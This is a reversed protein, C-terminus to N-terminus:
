QIGATSLPVFTYQAISYGPLLDTAASYTGTGHLVGFESIVYSNNNGIAWKPDSVKPVTTSNVVFTASSNNQGYGSKAVNGCVYWTDNYRVVTMYTNNYVYSPASTFQTIKFLATKGVNGINSSNVGDGLQGNFQSGACYLGDSKIIFFCNINASYDIVDTSLVRKTSVTGSVSLLQGVSGNGTGYLTNSTDLYWFTGDQAGYSSIKKVNVFNTNLAFARATTNGTGHQGSVNTGGSYVTGSVTLAYVDYPGVSMDVIDQVALGAGTFISTRDTFIQTSNATGGTLGRIAGSSLVRNDMTTCFTTGLSSWVNKVSSQILKWDGTVDTNSASGDGFTSGANRGRAYLDGNEYLVMCWSSAALIKKVGPLPQIVQGYKIMRAFPIM